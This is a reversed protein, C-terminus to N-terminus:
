QFVFVKKKKDCNDYFLRRIGRQINTPRGIVDSDTIYLKKDVITRTIGLILQVSQL